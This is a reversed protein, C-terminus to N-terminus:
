HFEFLKDIGRNKFIKFQVTPNYQHFIRNSYAGQRDSKDHYTYNTYYFLFALLIGFTLIM